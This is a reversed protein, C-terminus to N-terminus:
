PRTWQEISPLGRTTLREIPKEVTIFARNNRVGYICTVVNTPQGFSQWNQDNPQNVVQVSRARLFIRQHFQWGNRVDADNLVTPRDAWLDFGGFELYLTAQEPAGPVPAFSGQRITFRTILTDKDRVTFTNSFLNYCAAKAQEEYSGATQSIQALNARQELVQEPTASVAGVKTGRWEQSGNANPGGRAYSGQFSSGDLSFRFTISGSAAIDQFTGQLVNGSLTGQIRGPLGGSGYTGAVTNGDQRLTMRMQGYIGAFTNWEGSINPSQAMATGCILLGLLSFLAAIFFFFYRPTMMM